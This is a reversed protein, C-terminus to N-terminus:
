RHSHTPSQGAGWYICLCPPPLASGYVHGVRWGRVQIVRLHCARRPRCAVTEGTRVGTWRDSGLIMGSLCGFFINGSLFMERKM